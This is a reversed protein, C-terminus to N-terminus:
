RGPAAGPKTCSGQQQESRVYEEAQELTQFVPVVSDLCSMEWLARLCKWTRGATVLCTRCGRLRPHLCCSGIWNGFQYDLQRLDIIVGCPQHSEVAQRVVDRMQEGHHNGESGIGAVGAFAVRVILWNDDTLHSETETHLLPLM